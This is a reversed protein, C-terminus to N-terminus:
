PSWKHEDEIEDQLQFQWGSQTRKFIEEWEDILAKIGPMPNECGAEEADEVIELLAQAMSTGIEILEDEEVPESM